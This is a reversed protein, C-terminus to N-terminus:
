EKMYLTTNLLPMNYKHRQKFYITHYMVESFGLGFLEYVKDIITFIGTIEPYKIMRFSTFFRTIIKQSEKNGESHCGM